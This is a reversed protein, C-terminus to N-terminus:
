ADAPRRWYLMPARGSRLSKAHWANGGPRHPGAGIRIPRGRGPWGARVNQHSRAYPRPITFFTATRKHVSQRQPLRTWCIPPVRHPRSRRLHSQRDRDSYEQRQWQGNNRDQAQATISMMFGIGLMLSFAFIARGVRGNYNITRM